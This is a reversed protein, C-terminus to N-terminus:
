RNDRLWSLQEGIRLGELPTEVSIDNSLLPEVLFERYRQGAFFVARGFPKALPILDSLVKRAWGRREAIGLRNLTHDYPSIQADPTVLGYLASLVRWEAGQSEIFDRAM